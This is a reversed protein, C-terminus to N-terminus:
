SPSRKLKDCDKKSPHAFLNCGGESYNACGDNYCDKESPTRSDASELCKSSSNHKRLTNASILFDASKRNTLNELELLENDMDVINKLMKEALRKSFKSHLENCMDVLEMIRKEKNTM